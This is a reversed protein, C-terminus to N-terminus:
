LFREVSTFLKKEKRRMQTAERAPVKEHDYGILHLLGHILLRTVESKVTVGFTRAQRKATPLSIVLDGLHGRPLRNRSIRQLPFSLVDTAKDKNRFVKNLARIDSDDTFVVSVECDRCGLDSLLM